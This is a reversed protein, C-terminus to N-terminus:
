DDSAQQMEPTVPIRGNPPDVVLSAPRIQRETVPEDWVINVDSNPEQQQRLAAARDRREIDAATLTEKPQEVPVGTVANSTWIGQLDPHGWPTRLPEFNGARTQAFVPILTYIAAVVGVAIVVRPALIRQIPQERRRNSESTDM